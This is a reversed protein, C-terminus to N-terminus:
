RRLSHGPPSPDAAIASIKGKRLQSLPARRLIWSNQVAEMLDVERLKADM